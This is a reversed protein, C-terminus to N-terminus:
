DVKVGNSLKIKGIFPVKLFGNATDGEFTASFPILKGKLLSTQATGTITNGEIALDGFSFDPKQIGPLDIDVDYEGDKDMIILFADGRYFMTDVFFKWKGLGLM